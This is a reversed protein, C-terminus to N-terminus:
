SRDIADVFLEGGSEIVTLSFTGVIGLRAGLAAAYGRMPGPVEPQLHLTGDVERDVELSYIRDVPLAREWILPRGNTQRLVPPVDDYDRVLWPGIPEDGDFQVQLVGPFGLARHAAVLERHNRALRFPPTPIGCSEILKKQLFRNNM